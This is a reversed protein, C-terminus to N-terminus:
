VRTQGSYCAVFKEGAFRLEVLRSDAEACNIERPFGNVIVEQAQRSAELSAQILELPPVQSLDICGASLQTGNDAGVSRPFLHAVAESQGNIKMSSRLAKLSVKLSVSQQINNVIAKAGSPKDHHNTFVLAGVAVCVVGCLAALAVVLHLRRTPRPTPEGIGPSATAPAFDQKLSADPTQM